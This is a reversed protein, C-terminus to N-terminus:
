RWSFVGGKLVRKLHEECGSIGDRVRSEQGPRRRRLPLFRSLRLSRRGNAENARAEVRHMPRPMTPLGTAAAAVTPSLMIPIDAMENHPTAHKRSRKTLPALAEEWSGSTLVVDELNLDCLTKRHDAVLTSIDAASAEVNEIHLYQIKPLHLMSSRRRPGLAPSTPRQARHQNNTQATTLVPRQLPLPGKEGIWRFNFTTLTNQFNRLYTQFVKFHDPQEVCPVTSALREAHITLDRIHSWRSASRPTAGYGLVPSLYLLGAPHIPSLTLSDLANLCNQEVAIRLSILAFDVVSRRHRQSANHGPCSIKLHKLNVFASMARIFASVNTAAHFIPPYQRTLIETTGADGYKPRRSTPAQIQPTYTFSLEAGTEPDVLPPLFTEATHPFTLTLTKVYFGLRDLAALRAPKTFTNTRFTISLDSSFLAEAARM